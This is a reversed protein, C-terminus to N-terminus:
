YDEDDEEPDVAIIFAEFDDPLYALAEEVANEVEESGRYDEDHIEITLKYVQSM